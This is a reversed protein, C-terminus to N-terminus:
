MLFPLAVPRPNGFGPVALAINDYAVVHPDAILSDYQGTHSDTVSGDDSRTSDDGAVHSRIRNDSADRGAGDAGAESGLHNFEQQTDAPPLPRVFADATSDRRDLRAVPYLQFPEGAPFGGVSVCRM